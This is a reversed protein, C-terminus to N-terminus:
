SACQRYRRLIENGTRRVNEAIRRVERGEALFFKHKNAEEDLCLIDLYYGIISEKHLLYAFENSNLVIAPNIDKFFIKVEEILEECEKLQNITENLWGKFKKKVEDAYKKQECMKKYAKIEEESVEYETEIPLNFEDIIKYAGDIQSLGFLQAVFGIADGHAGCGFCHYHSKDIKMSPHKDNHFPCCAMGNRNVKIGYNEAVERASVYEKIENFITM